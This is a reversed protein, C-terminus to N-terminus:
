LDSRRRARRPLDARGAAVIQALLPRSFTRGIVAAVQAVEKAEGMADLRAMLSDQLTDPITHRGTASSVLMAETLEELFLPNGDSRAVIGAIVDVQLRRAAIV